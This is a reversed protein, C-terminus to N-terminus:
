GEGSGGKVMMVVGWVCALGVFDLRFGDDKAPFRVRVLARSTVRLFVNQGGKGCREGPKALQEGPEAVRTNRAPIRPIIILVTKVSRVCCRTEYYYM